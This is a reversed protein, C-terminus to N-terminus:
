TDIWRIEIKDNWGSRLYADREPVERLIWYIV